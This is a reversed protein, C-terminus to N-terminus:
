GLRLQGGSRSFPGAEDFAAIVHNHLAVTEEVLRTEVPRHFCEAHQERFAPTDLTAYPPKAYSLAAPIEDAILDLRTGPLGGGFVFGGRRPGEAPRVVLHHQLEHLGAGLMAATLEALWEVGGPVDIAVGAAIQAGLNGADPGVLALRTKE